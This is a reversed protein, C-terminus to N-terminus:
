PGIVLWPDGRLRGHDPCTLATGPLSGGSDLFKQIRTQSRDISNRVEKIPLYRGPFGLVIATRPTSQEFVALPVTSVTRCAYLANPRMGFTPAWQHDSSEPRPSAIGRSVPQLFGSVEGSRGRVGTRNAGRRDHERCEKLQM